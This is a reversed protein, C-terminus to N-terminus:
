KKMHLFYDVALFLGLSLFAGIFIWLGISVQQATIGTGLTTTTVDQAYQAAITRLSDSAVAGEAAKQSMVAAQPIDLSTEGIGGMSQAFFHIVLSAAGIIGLTPLIAKLKEKIGYTSKPAIIIYKNALKYHLVERGKSSYHFEEAQVLGAKVLAQINYHVTSLPVSLKESLETETASKDALYDLIKRCSDNTIVQALQKTQDEQLNVLLFSSKAM